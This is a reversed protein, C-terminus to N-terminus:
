TGLSIFWDPLQVSSTTVLFGIDWHNLVGCHQTNSVDCNWPTTSTSAAWLWAAVQPGQNRADQPGASKLVHNESKGCPYSSFLLSSCSQVWLSSGITGAWMRLNPFLTREMALIYIYISENIYRSLRQQFFFCCRMGSYSHVCYCMNCFFVSSRLWFVQIWIGEM